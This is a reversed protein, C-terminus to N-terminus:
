IAAALRDAADSALDLAYAYLLHGGGPVASDRWPERQFGLRDYFGQAQTMHAGTYLAVRSLGRARALAIVQGVLARAAGQGRVAPDIGLMRFGIEPAPPDIVYHQPRDPAPTFLAGVIRGDIKAVWFEVQGLKSELHRLENRYADDIGYSTDYARELVDGIVALEEAAAPGVVVTGATVALTNETM